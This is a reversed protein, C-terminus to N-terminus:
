KCHQRIAGTKRNYPIKKKQKLQKLSFKSEAISQTQIKYIFLIFNVNESIQTKFKRLVFEIM